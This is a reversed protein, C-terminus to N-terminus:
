AAAGDDGAYGEDTHYALTIIPNTGDELVEFPINNTVIGPGAVNPTSGQYQIDPCTIIAQYNSISGPILSGTSTIVLDTEEGAIWAQYIDSNEFERTLEGTITPQTTILHPRRSAAGHQSRSAQGTNVEIRTGQVPESTSDIAVAIQTYDFFTTAGPYTPTAIATELTRSLTDWTPRFMLVDEDRSEMVFSIIKGVYTFPVRAANSPPRVTQLTALLEFFRAPDLTYTHLRATDTGDAGGALAAAGWDDGVETLSATTAVANAGTGRGQRDTAVVTTATAEASVDVNRPTDAHYADGSGLGDSATLRNIAAAIYSCQLAVDVAILIDNAASLSAVFTYTQTGVTITDNATPVESLTLTGEADTSGPWSFEYGYFAHRLLRAMGVTWFTYVNEGSAMGTDVPRVRGSRPFVTGAIGQKRITPLSDQVSESEFEIFDSPTVITLNDHLANTAIGVQGAVGTRLSEVM